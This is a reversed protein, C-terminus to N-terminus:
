PASAQLLGERILRKVLVLKADANLVGAIDGVRFRPHAAIFRLAELAKAPTRITEGMFHIAASDPGATVACGVGSRREVMADIDLRDLTTISQLYGGPPPNKRRATTTLGRAYGAFVTQFDPLSGLGDRLRDSLASVPPLAEAGLGPLPVSDRWRADQQALHDLTQRALDHWTLPFIGVTVHISYEGSTAAAHPFGQPMYLVDGRTLEVEHLLAPEGGDRPKDFVQWRKAGHTQLVLVDHEDSHRSFGQANPGTVYINTQLTALLQDELEAVLKRTAPWRLHAANLVITYGADLGNYLAQVDYSQPRFLGKVMGMPPWQGQRVLQVDGASPQAVFLYEELDDLGFLGDFRARDGDQLLLARRTWYDRLFTSEDFPALIRALPSTDAM